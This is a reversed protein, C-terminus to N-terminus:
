HAKLVYSPGMPITGDGKGMFRTFTFKMKRASLVLAYVRQKRNLRKKKGCLVATHKQAHIGGLFIGTKHDGSMFIRDEAVYGQGGSLAVVDM